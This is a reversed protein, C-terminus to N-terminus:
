YTGIWKCNSHNSHVVVAGGDGLISLMCTKSSEMETIIDLIRMFVMTKRIDREDIQPRNNSKQVDVDVPRLTENKTGAGRADVCTRNLADAVGWFVDGVRQRSMFCRGHITPVNPFPYGLLIISQIISPNFPISNSNPFIKIYKNKPPDTPVSHAGANCEESPNRTSATPQLM